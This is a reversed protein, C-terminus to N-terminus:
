SPCVARHGTESDSGQLGGGMRGDQFYGGSAHIAAALDSRLEPGDSCTAPSYAQVVSPNHLFGRLMKALEAAPELPNLPAAVGVEYLHPAFKLERVVEFKDDALASQVEAESM